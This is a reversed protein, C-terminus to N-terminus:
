RWPQVVEVASCGGPSVLSFMQKRQGSGEEVQLFPDVDTM